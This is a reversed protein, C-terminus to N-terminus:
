KQWCLLMRRAGPTPIPQIRANSSVIDNNTMKKTTVWSETDGDAIQERRM